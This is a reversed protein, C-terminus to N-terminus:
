GRAARVSLRRRLLRTRTALNHRSLAIRRRLRGTGSARCCERDPRWRGAVHERLAVGLEAQDIRDLSPQRRSEIELRDDIDDAVLQAVEECCLLERDRPVLFARAEHM